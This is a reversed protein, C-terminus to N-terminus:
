HAVRRISFPATRGREARVQARYSDRLRLLDPVPTRALSRGEITYSEADETARGEIAAEIAALIRAAASRTDGTAALPDPLVEVEGTALTVREGTEAEIALAAWAYRGAPFGATVASSFSVRVGEPDPVGAARVIPGGAEPKITWALALVPGGPAAAPAPVIWTWFDGATLRPPMAYAM